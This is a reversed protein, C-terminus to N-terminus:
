TTAVAPLKSSAVPDYTPAATQINRPRLTKQNYTPNPQTSHDFLDYGSRDRPSIAHNRRTDVKQRPPILPSSALGNMRSDPSPSQDAQLESGRKGSSSRTGLYKARETGNLDLEEKANHRKGTRLSKWGVGRQNRAAATRAVGTHWASCPQDSTGTAGRLVFPTPAM